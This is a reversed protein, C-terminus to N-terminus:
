RRLILILAVGALILSARNKPAFPEAVFSSFGGLTSDLLDEPRIEVSEVTAGGRNAVEAATPPVYLPDAPPAILPTGRAAEAEAIRMREAVEEVTSLRKGLGDDNSSCSELVYGDAILQRHTSSRTVDDCTLLGMTSTLRQGDSARFYIANVSM